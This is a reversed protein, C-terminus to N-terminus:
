SSFRAPDPDLCTQRSRSEVLDDTDSDSDDDSNISWMFLIGYTNSANQLHEFSKSTEINLQM